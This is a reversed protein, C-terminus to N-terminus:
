RCSNTAWFTGACGGTCPGADLRLNMGQGYTKYAEGQYYDITANNIGSFYVGVLDATWNPFFAYTGNPSSLIDSNASYWIKAPYWINAAIGTGNISSDVRDPPITNQFREGYITNFINGTLSVSSTWPISAYQVMQDQGYVLVAQSYPINLSVTVDTGTQVGTSTENTMDDTTSTTNTTGYTFSQTASGGIGGFDSPPSYSVTISTEGGFSQEHTNTTSSSSTITSTDTVSIPVEVTVPLPNPDMCNYFWKNYFTNSVPTGQGSPVQYTAPTSTLTGGDFSSIAWYSPSSQNTVTGAGAPQYGYAQIAKITSTYLDICNPSGPTCTTSSQALASAAGLWVIALVLMLRGCLCAIHQIEERTWIVCGISRKCVQM